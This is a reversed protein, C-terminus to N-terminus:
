NRSLRESINNLAYFYFELPRYFCKPFNRFVSLRGHLLRLSKLWDCFPPFCLRWWIYCCWIWRLLLLMHIYWNHMARNRPSTTRAPSFSYDTPRQEFRCVVFVIKRAKEILTHRHTHTHTACMQAPSDLALYHNCVKLAHLSNEDYYHSTNVRQLGLVENIM